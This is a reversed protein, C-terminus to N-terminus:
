LIICKKRFEQKDLISILLLKKTNCVRYFDSVRIKYDVFNQFTLIKVININAIENQQEKRRPQVQSSGINM